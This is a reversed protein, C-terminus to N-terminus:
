LQSLIDAKKNEYEESTILQKEFLTKLKKLKLAVEDEPEEVPLVNQTQIFPKEEDEILM